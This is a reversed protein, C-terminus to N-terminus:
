VLEMKKVTKRWYAALGIGTVLDWIGWWAAIVTMGGLGNFFRFILLLGLATNHVGAEFALTRRDAEPLRALTGLWYGNALGLANHVLVLLFIFGLYNRINEFNGLLALLLISFFLLLAVRQVWPRIQGVQVPYRTCLMMGAVLPLLILQVIIWAMDQFGVEFSKRLSESGPIFRSWWLFGAPTAFSSLLIMIANLTVSLATNAKAFHVLFNTMNGSPCMSVLIMGM